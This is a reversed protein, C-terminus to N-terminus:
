VVILRGDVFLTFAISESRDDICALEHQLEV